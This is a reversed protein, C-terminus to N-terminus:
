LAAIILGIGIGGALAILKDTLGNWWLGKTEKRLKKIIVELSHVRSNLAQNNKKLDNNNLKLDVLANDMDALLKNLRGNANASDGEMRKSLDTVIKELDNLNKLLKNNQEASKNYLQRVEDLEDLKDNIFKSRKLSVVYATDAKIDVHDGKFVKILDDKQLFKKHQAQVGAAMLFAVVIIWYRIMNTLDLHQLTPQCYNLSM